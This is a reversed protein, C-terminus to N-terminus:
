RAERERLGHAVRASRLLDLNKLWKLMNTWDCIMLRNLEIESVIPSGVIMRELSL